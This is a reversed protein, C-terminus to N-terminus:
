AGILMRNMRMALDRIHAGNAESIRGGFLKIHGEM